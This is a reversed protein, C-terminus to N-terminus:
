PVTFEFIWSGAIRQQDNGGGSGFGILEVVELRWPGHYDYMGAFYTYDNCAMGDEDDFPQVGGGGPVDGADTTLQPIATWRRAPDPPAFCVIVRTQSPAVSVSRLEVTINQDVATIPNQMVRQDDVPNISFDFGFVVGPGEKMEDFQEIPLRTRQELTIGYPEVELHLDLASRGSVDVDNLDYTLVLLSRDSTALEDQDWTAFGGEENLLAGTMGQLFPIEEGTDRLTLTFTDSSLNTYQAGDRGHIIYALTLRNGDAYAWELTVTFDGHTQSIGIEHGLGQDYIAKLGADYDIFQQFLTNMAIVVGIGLVMVALLAAALRRSWRHKPPPLARLIKKAGRRNIFERRLSRALEAEFDARPVPAAAAIRAEFRTFAAPPSAQSSSAQESM